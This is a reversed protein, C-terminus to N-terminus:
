PALKSRSTARLALYSGFFRNRSFAFTGGFIPHRCTGPRAEQYRTLDPCGHRNGIPGLYPLPCSVSPAARIAALQFGMRCSDAMVQWRFESKAQGNGAMRPRFAPESCTGLSGLEDLFGAVMTRQVPNSLGGAREVRMASVAPPRSEKLTLCLRSRGRAAAAYPM